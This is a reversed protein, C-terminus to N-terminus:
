RATLHVTVNKSTERSRTPKINVLFSTDAKTPEIRVTPLTTEYVSSLYYIQCAQHANCPSHGVKHVEHVVAM